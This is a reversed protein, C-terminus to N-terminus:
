LRSNIPIEQRQTRILRIESISKMNKQKKKQLKIGLLSPEAKCPTFGM